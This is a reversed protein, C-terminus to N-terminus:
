NEPKDESKKTWEIEDVNGLYQETHQKMINRPVNKTMPNSKNEESKVFVIVMQGTEEDIHQHVFNARMDIHKKRKTETTNKTM